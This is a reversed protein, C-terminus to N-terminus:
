GHCHYPGDGLGGTQIWYLTCRENGAKERPYPIVSTLWNIDSKVHSVHLFLISNAHELHLCRSMCSSNLIGAMIISIFAPKFYNKVTIIKRTNILDQMKNAIICM